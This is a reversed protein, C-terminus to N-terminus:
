LFISNVRFIIGSPMKPNLPIPNDDSYTPAQQTKDIIAIDETIVEPVEFTGSTILTTDSAISVAIPEKDLDSLSLAKITSALETDPLTALYDDQAILKEARVAYMEDILRDISDAKLQNLKAKIANLDIAM